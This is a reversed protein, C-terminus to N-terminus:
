SAGPVTPEDSDSIELAGVPRTTPSLITGPNSSAISWRTLELRVYLDPRCGTAPEDGAAVGAAKKPAPPLAATM